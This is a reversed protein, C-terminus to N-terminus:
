EESKVTYEPFDRELGAAAKEYDFQDVLKRIDQLRTDVAPGFNRATLGAAINQSAEYDFRLLARYLESVGRALEGASSADAGAPPTPGPKDSLATRLAAAFVRFRELFPPLDRRCTELDQDAAARELAAAAESLPMAGINALSGKSGHVEVKLRNMDGSDWAKQITAVQEEAMECVMWLLKEYLDADDVVRSLGLPVDLGEVKRARDLPSDPKDAEPTAAPAPSASSASSAAPTVVPTGNEEGAPIVVTQSVRKEKPMWRSLIGQMKIKEIPKALFDNMGAAFRYERAGILAIATRAVIPVYAFRGGVVRIQRTAEVGDMEPMMHDMFIMDYPNVALLDIAEAGSRALDCQINFMGLLGAAVHLNVESDDVLLVRADASYSTVQVAEVKEALAPDGREHPIWVRFVSGKGPESEVEIRGHM